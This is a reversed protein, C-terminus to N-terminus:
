EVRTLIEVRVMTKRKRLDKRRHHKYADDVSMGTVNREYRIFSLFFFVREKYM